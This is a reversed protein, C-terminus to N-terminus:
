AGGCCTVEEEHDPLAVGGATEVMTDPYQPNECGGPWGSPPDMQCGVYGAFMLGQRPVQVPQVLDELGVEGVPVGGM